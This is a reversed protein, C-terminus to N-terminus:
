SHGAPWESLCGPLCAQVIFGVALSVDRMCAYGLELYAQSPCLQFCVHTPGCSVQGAISDIGKEYEADIKEQLASAQRRIHKPWRGMIDGFIHCPRMDDPCGSVIQRPVHWIDSGQSHKFGIGTDVGKAKLAEPLLKFAISDASIGMYHVRINIGEQINKILREWCGQGAHGQRVDEVVRTHWTFLEEPSIPCRMRIFLALSLIGLGPL